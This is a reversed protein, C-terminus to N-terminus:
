PGPDQGALRKIMRRKRETSDPNQWTCEEEKTWVAYITGCLKGRAHGLATARGKGRRRQRRYIAKVPNDGSTKTAASEAAIGVAAKLHRNCRRVPGAQRARTGSQRNRPVSGAYARFHELSAFRAMTGVEYRLTAANHLGVGPISVLRDVVDDDVVLGAVMRDLADVRPELAEIQALYAEMLAGRGPDTDQGRLWARGKASYLTKGEFPVQLGERRLYAGLRQKAKTCQEVVDKRARVLERAELVDPAPVYVDPFKDIRVLDAIEYADKEDFKQDCQWITKMRKSDGLRVDYGQQVLHDHVPYALTGVEMGVPVDSPVLQTLQDYGTQTNPVSTQEVVDGSEDLVAVDLRPKSVDIGAYHM